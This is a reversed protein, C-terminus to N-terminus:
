LSLASLPSFTSVTRLVENYNTTSINHQHEYGSGATQPMKSASIPKGEDIWEEEQAAAPVAPLPSFLHYLGTTHFACLLYALHNGGRISWCARRGKMRNGILTFVNSEMSGLRAHHITGPARTKPINIGRDYYGKLAEKYETYYSQLEKLNAIEKEDIVSNIQAKLCELLEDIKNEYLLERLLRAFDQDRVCERLKKNRHFEDLVCICGEKQKPLTWSGGDGNFVRLEIEDKSFVSAILGEKQKRYEEASMFGAFAVKNDLNRRKTGDKKERWKVGDYAIGVKMEKSNGEEQRSKGQLKLWVGDNEEYLIKTAIIGTGAHAADLEVDRRIRAAQKEGLAQVVDWVGQASIAQGTQESIQRATARYSNECISSGILQCVGESINGIKNIALEADLLYVSKCSGNKEDQVELDQYVRRDYVVEGMVTKICTTRLGKNRYREGDRETLIQLDRTELIQRMLTRGFELAVRYVEREAETFDKIKLNDIEVPVAITM